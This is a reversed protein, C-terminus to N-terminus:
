ITSPIAIVRKIKRRKNAMYLDPIGKLLRRINLMSENIQTTGAIVGTQQTV